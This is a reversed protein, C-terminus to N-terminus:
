EGEMNIDGTCLTDWYKRDGLFKDRTPWLDMNLINSSDRRIQHAGHDEV